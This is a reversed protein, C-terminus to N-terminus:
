RQLFYGVHQSLRDYGAQIIHFKNGEMGTVKGPGFGRSKGDEKFLVEDGKLISIIWM